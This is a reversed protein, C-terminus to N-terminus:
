AQGMIADALGLADLVRDPSAYSPTGDLIAATASLQDAAFLGSGEEPRRRTGDRYLADNSQRLIGHSYELVMEFHRELGEDAACDLELESGGPYHFTVLLKTDTCRRVDLTDPLGCVDIIRHLRAINAHAISAVNKRAGGTFRVSGGEFDRGESQERFWQAAPTLMEIHEVHLVRDRAMAMAYLNSAERSSSALPFECLVHRRASLCAHVQDAHFIDPSCIALADVHKILEVVSDYEEVDLGELRGRWAGILESRPDAQIAAVRARGARGVGVVGWRVRM